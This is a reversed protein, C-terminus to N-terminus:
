LLIVEPELVIGFQDQIRARIGEAFEWIEKGTAGGCNILVLPQKHHTAVNGQRFGKLGAMDILWAASLKMRSQEAPFAPIEPYKEILKRALDKEVVPNKFFSGANGTIDPDPLKSERIKIVAERVGRIGSSGKTQMEKEITGYHTTLRHPPKQLRFQVSTVLFNDKLDHKFISDRYGFKCSNNDLVELTGTTFNFGEVSELFDKVEVGYAGINQVPAAGVNGPIRSLNEPGGWDQSVAYEVWTDWDVGCGVRVKVEEESEEVVEIHDLVPHIVLGDFDGLFLLNSGGGLILRKSTKFVEEHILDELEHHDSIKVYYRSKIDLRFSNLAQLSFDSQIQLMKKSNECIYLLKAAVFPSPLWKQRGFSRNVKIRM